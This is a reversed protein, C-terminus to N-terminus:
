RARAIVMYQNGYGAILEAQGLVGILDRRNEQQDNDFLEFFKRKLFDLSANAATSTFPVSFHSRGNVVDYACNYVTGWETTKRKATADGYFWKIKVIPIKSGKSIQIVESNTTPAQLSLGLATIGTSLVGKGFKLLGAEPVAILLTRGADLPDKYYVAVKDQSRQPTRTSEVRRKELAAERRKRKEALATLEASSLLRKGM